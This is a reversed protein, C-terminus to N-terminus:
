QPACVRKMSANVAGVSWKVVNSTRNSSGATNRAPMHAHRAQAAVNTPRLGTLAAVGVLFVAINVSQRINM